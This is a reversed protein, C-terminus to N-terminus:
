AAIPVKTTHRTGHAAIDPDWLQGTTVLPLLRSLLWRGKEPNTIRLFLYRAFPMNYGRLAFGQIDSANLKSM